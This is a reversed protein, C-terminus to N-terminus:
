KFKSNIFEFFHEQFFSEDYHNLFKKFLIEVKEDVTLKQINNNMKRCSM